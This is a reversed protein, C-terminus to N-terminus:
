KQNNKCHYYDKFGDTNPRTYRLIYNSECIEDKLRETESKVDSYELVCKYSKFQRKNQANVM